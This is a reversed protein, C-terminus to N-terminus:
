TEFTFIVVAARSGQRDGGAALHRDARGQYYRRHSPQSVPRLEIIHSSTDHWDAVVKIPLRKLGRVISSHRLSYITTGAPLKAASVAKAFPYIHDATEPRWAGGGPRTLLPEHAARGAAAKHLREALAPGIPVGVHGGRGGNRGKHSAPIMLKDGHLDGVLCRALQSSRSGTEAHVQVYLGFEESLHYSASVAALVQKDNLVTDRAKVTNPLAELGVKWAERNAAIRKDLKGALNFAAHAGKMLRNISAPQISGTKILGDRWQRLQKSTVTSLPQPALRAPLHVRVAGANYINRGRAQLDSEYATLAQDITV